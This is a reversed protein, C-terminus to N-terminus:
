GGRLVEVGPKGESIGGGMNGEAFGMLLQVGNLGEIQELLEWCVRQGLFGFWLITTTIGVDM